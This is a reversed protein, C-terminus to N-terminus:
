RPRGWTRVVFWVACDFWNWPAYYAAQPCYMILGFLQYEHACEQSVSTASCCHKMSLQKTVM